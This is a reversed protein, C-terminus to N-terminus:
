DENEKGKENMEINEMGQQQMRERIADWVTQPSVGPPHCGTCIAVHPGLGPGDRNITMHGNCPGGCAACTTNTFLM